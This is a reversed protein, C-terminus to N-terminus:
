PSIPTATRRTTAVRAAAMCFRRLSPYKGELRQLFVRAARETEADLAPSRAPSPTTKEALRSITSKSVNFRRVLDAQTAEGSALAQLGERRQAPTLKPPRGM